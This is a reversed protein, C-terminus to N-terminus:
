KKLVNLEYLKFLRQECANSIENKNKVPIGFIDDGYMKILYPTPSGYSSIFHTGKNENTQLFMEKQFEGSLFLNPKSLGKKKAYAKSYLPLIQKGTSLNSSLMQKRNANVILKENDSIAIASWVKLEGVFANSRKRLGSVDLKPMKIKRRYFVVLIEM